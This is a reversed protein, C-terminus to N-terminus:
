RNLQIDFRGETVQVEAPTPPPVNGGPNARPAARLEFRGAVFPRVGATDLRTITITGTHLSDTVYPLVSPYPLSELTAFGGQPRTGRGLTYVGPALVQPVTVYFATVPGGSQARWFAYLSLQRRTYHANPSYQNGVFSTPGNKAEWM